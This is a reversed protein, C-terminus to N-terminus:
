LGWLGVLWQAFATSEAVSVYKYDGVQIQLELIKFNLIKL